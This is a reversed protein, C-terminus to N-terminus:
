WLSQTTEAPWAGRFNLRLGRFHPPSPNEPVGPDAYGLLIAPKSVRRSNRRLVVTARWNM